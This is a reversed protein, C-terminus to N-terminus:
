SRASSSANPLTLSSPAAVRLDSSSGTVALAQTAAPSSSWSTVPRLAAQANAAQPNNSAHVYINSLDDPSRQFDPNVELVVHYQNLQTFITSVLRQGFADYM